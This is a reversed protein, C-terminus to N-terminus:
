HYLSGNHCSSEQSLAEISGPGNVMRLPVGNREFHCLAMCSATMHFIEPFDPTIFFLSLFIDIM